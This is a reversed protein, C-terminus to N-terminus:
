PVEKLMHSENFLTCNIICVRLCTIKFIYLFYHVESGQKTMFIGALQGCLELESSLM